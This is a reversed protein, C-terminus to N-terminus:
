PAFEEEPITKKPQEAVNEEQPPTITTDISTEDDTRVREIKRSATIEVTSETSIQSEYSMKKTPNLENSEHHKIGPNEQNSQQEEPIQNTEIRDDATTVDKENGNDDMKVTPAEKKVM